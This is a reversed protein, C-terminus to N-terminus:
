VDGLALVYGRVEFREKNDIGFFIQIIEEMFGKPSNCVISDNSFHAAASSRFHKGVCYNIKKKLERKVVKCLYSHWKTQMVISNIGIEFNQM